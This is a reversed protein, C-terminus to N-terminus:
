QKDELAQLRSELEAIQKIGYLTSIGELIQKGVDPAVKGESIAQLVAEAQETVSASADFDFEVKESQARLAPMVRSLILNAAQPDGELAQAIMRDVIGQADDLMRQALKARKDSIGKPRGAPNPSKMGKQWKPNGPPPATVPQYGKLWEPQVVETM